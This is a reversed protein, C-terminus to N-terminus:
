GRRIPRLHHSLDGVHDIAYSREDWRWIADDGRVFRDVYRGTIIPQLPTDDDGHGTIGQFVIYSSRASATGTADDVEIIPNATVHRTQPSGDYVKTQEHWMTTMAESGSCFVKGKDDSLRGEAFLAALGDFDGADMLECYRGLLNRIAEHAESM